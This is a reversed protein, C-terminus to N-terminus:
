GAGRATGPYVRVGDPLTGPRASTAAPVSGPYMLLFIWFNLVSLNSVYFLRFNQSIYNMNVSPDLRKCSNGSYRIVETPRVYRMPAHIWELIEM